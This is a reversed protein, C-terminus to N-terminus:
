ATWPYEIVIRTPGTVWDYFKKANPPALHICGASPGYNSNITDPGEHIFIGRQGMILVAHDMWVGFENSWKRPFKDTGVIGRITLDKAYTLGQRGLCPLNESGFRISGEGKPKFTVKASPVDLLPDAIPALMGAATGSSLRVCTALADVAVWRVVFESDTFATPIGLVMVASRPLRYYYPPGALPRLVIHDGNEFLEAILRVSGGASRDADLMDFSFSGISTPEAAESGVVGHHRIEDFIEKADSKRKELEKLAKSDKLSGDTNFTMDRIFAFEQDSYAPDWHDNEPVQSHGYHGGKKQWTGSDRNHGGPDKGNLSPNPAGNPWSKPIGHQKELWRCLRALNQLTAADKSRGAYAVIEIQIASLRNTEVGGPENKLSRAAVETDLHQYVATADVTFHPWSNNKKYAEFAGSATPGETTHHVIRFPGTSYPGASTGEPERVALPYLGM